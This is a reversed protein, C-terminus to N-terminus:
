GKSTSAMLVWYSKTNWTPYIKLWVLGFKSELNTFIYGSANIQWPFLYVSLKHIHIEKRFKELLFKLYYFLLLSIKLHANHCVGTIGVSPLSAPPDRRTKKVRRFSNQTHCTAWISLEIEGMHTSDLVIRSDQQHGLVM